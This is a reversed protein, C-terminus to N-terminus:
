DKLDLLQSYVKGAREDSPNAEIITEAIEKEFEAKFRSKLGSSLGQDTGTEFAEYLLIGAAHSQNLSEYGGVPIHVVSDCLELEENSLGKSERGIMISSNERWSFSKCSQGRGPKTGVVYELDEVAEELTDFIEVNRLTEQASSATKRCEELNFCPKVVRLGFDFNACLRAIFGLNGPKEPEVVVAKRM